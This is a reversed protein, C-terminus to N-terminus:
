ASVSALQMRAIEVSKHTKVHPRLALGAGGVDNAMSTINREVRDLDVVVTPTDLDRSVPWPEFDDCAREPSSGVWDGRTGFCSESM